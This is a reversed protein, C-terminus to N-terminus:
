AMTLGSNPLSNEGPATAASSVNFWMFFVYKRMKLNNANAENRTSKM